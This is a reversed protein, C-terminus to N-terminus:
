PEHNKQEKRNVKQKFLWMFSVLRVAGRCVGGGVCVCVRACEDM